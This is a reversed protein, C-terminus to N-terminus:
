INYNIRKYNKLIDDSKLFTAKTYIEEDSLNENINLLYNFASLNDEYFIFM